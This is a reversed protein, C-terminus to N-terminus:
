EDLAVKVLMELTDESTPSRCRLQDRLLQGSQFDLLSEEELRFPAKSTISLPTKRHDFFGASVSYNRILPAQTFEVVVVPEDLVLRRRIPLRRLEQPTEYIVVQVVGHALKRYYFDSHTGTGEGDVTVMMYLSGMPIGVRWPWRDECLTVIEAM